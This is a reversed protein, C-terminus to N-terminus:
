PHVVAMVECIGRKAHLFVFVVTVDLRSWEPQEKLGTGLASIHNKTNSSGAIDDGTQQTVRGFWM